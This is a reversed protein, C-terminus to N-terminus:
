AIRRPRITTREHRSRSRRVTTRRAPELEGFAAFAISTVFIGGALGLMINTWSFTAPAAAAIPAVGGYNTQINTVGTEADDANATTATGAKVADILAQIPALDENLTLPADPPLTATGTPTAGVGIPRLVIEQSIVRENM